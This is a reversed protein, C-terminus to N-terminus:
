ITYSAGNFELRGVM